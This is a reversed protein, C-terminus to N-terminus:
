LSGLRRRADALLPSTGKEQIRLFTQYSEKAAPSKLGEQARGLYYYVPPFLHYTPSEDLFLATAEGRRKLCVDLESDAEAYAGADLYARAADYRGMWTDAIKRSDAILQLAEKLKGRNLAYEAEILKAYAQPDAELRSGLQQALELAKQPKKAGLYARAAWFMIGTEKSQQLGQDAAHLAAADNGILLYAQALIAFKNAASDPNKNALDDQTGQTLIKVADPVRGEYLAVDALGAAAASAPQAGLKRLRQYTNVAEAPHGEGLQSLAMGVYGLVFSPNLELVKQQEQIGSAFDGAYMAYLGVNNRQAGNKPYTEVARRGEDLANFMDRRYFHALALNALGATDSPYQKVLQTFQELAKDPNRAMLYYAGRTRYKERDSMSDIKALALHFYKEAEQPRGTNHYSVGLVVYARGLEPDFQLATLAHEIATDWKGALDATQALAYEHAAELSRATFSEAAIQQASERTTDGLAKRIRAALKGVALLVDQKGITDKATVLLKGSSPDIAKVQIDYANPRHSISGTVVVHVNERTAVLRALTEDLTTAGPQLRAAVRHAQARSYGTIFSAGELATGFAPELTGDFVPDGTDNKFDAVLVSVPAHQATTKHTLRQVVIQTGALLLVAAAAAIWKAAKRWAPALWADLHTLVETATQYRLDRQPELCREVIKSLSRPVNPDIEHVPKAKERTRKLLADPTDVPFPLKGTLLEFFIIGLAFIDSRADAEQGLAQEPAMYAPTGVLVGTRSYFAAAQMTSVGGSPPGPPRIEAAEALHAVGFDMVVIRNQVDRMINGPKLDRHIVGEAHAAELGRCVQQIINSAEVPTLKSERLLITGLTEGDIYEMTIFKVGDAEGLDFIRIVNRHTVQRALILEQKFRHLIESSLALSPRIIKLALLRDLECDRAKYVAGMGGEGLLALIQYRNGLMRGPKFREASATHHIPASPESWGHTLTQNVDCSTDSDRLSDEIAPDDLPLPTSCQTCVSTGPPNSLGCQTCQM